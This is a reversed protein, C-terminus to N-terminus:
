NGDAAEEPAANDNNFTQGCPKDPTEPAAPMRGHHRASTNNNVAQSRFFRM